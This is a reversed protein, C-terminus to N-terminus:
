KVHRFNKYLTNKEWKNYIFEMFRDNMEKNCGSLEIYSKQKEPFTHVALHSEGLLWLATYGNNDFHHETFDLIKYGSYNLSDKLVTRLEESNCINIWCVFNYIQAEIIKNTNTTKNM